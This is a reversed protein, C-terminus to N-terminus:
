RATVRWSYDSFIEHVHSALMVFMKFFNYFPLVIYYVLYQYLPRTKGYIIEAIFIKVFNTVFLLLTILLLYLHTVDTEMRIFYIICSTGAHITCYHYFERFPLFLFMIIKEISPRDSCLIRTYHRMTVQLWGQAWRLRQKYLSLLSSPALESSIMNFCYGLKYGGFTARLGSDIDETLMANDMEISSLACTRWIANSGGFLSYHRLYTGAVHHILYMESFEMDNLFNNRVCCRGQIVDYPQDYPIVPTVDGVKFELLSLGKILCDECPQHDADYIGIYNCFNDLKKIGYNVNEAKSTSDKNEIIIFEVNDKFKINNLKIIIEDECKGNYVVLITTNGVYQVKEAYHNITECIINKENPMYVPIIIGLKINEKELNKIALEIDFTSKSKKIICLAILSEIAILINIIIILTVSTWYIASLCWMPVNYCVLASLTILHLVYIFGLILM